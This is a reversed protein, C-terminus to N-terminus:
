SAYKCLCCYLTGFTPSAVSFTQESIKTQTFSSSITTCYKSDIKAPSPSLSLLEISLDKNVDV